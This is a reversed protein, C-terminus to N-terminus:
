WGAGFVRKVCSLGSRGAEHIICFRRGNVKWWIFEFLNSSHAQSHSEFHSNLIEISMWLDIAITDDSIIKLVDRHEIISFPLCWLTPAAWQAANSSCALKFGTAPDNSRQFLSISGWVKSDLTPTRLESPENSLSNNHEQKSFNDM